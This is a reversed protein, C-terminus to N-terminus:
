SALKWRIKQYHVGIDQRELALSGDFALRGAGAADFQENIGFVKAPSSQDGIM